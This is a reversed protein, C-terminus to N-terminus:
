IKRNIINGAWPNHEESEPMNESFNELSDRQSRAQQKQGQQRQKQRDSEKKEVKKGGESGQAEQVAANQQKLFETAIHQNTNQNISAAHEGAQAINEVYGIQQIIIPLGDVAM